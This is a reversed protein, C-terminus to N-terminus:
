APAEGYVNLPSEAPLWEIKTRSAMPQTLVAEITETEGPGVNVVVAVEVAAKHLPPLM